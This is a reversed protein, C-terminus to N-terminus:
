KELIIDTITRIVLLYFLLEVKFIEKLSNTVRPWESLTSQLMLSVLALAVTSSRYYGILAWSAAVAEFNDRLAMSEILHPAGIVALMAELFRTCSPLTLLDWDLVRLVQGEMRNLERVTYDANLRRLFTSADLISEGESYLFYHRPMSTPSSSQHIFSNFCEEHLKVALYLATM